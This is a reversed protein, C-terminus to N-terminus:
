EVQREQPQEVPQQQAQQREQPPQAQQQEVRVQQQVAQAQQQRAVLAWRALRRAVQSHSVQAWQRAV